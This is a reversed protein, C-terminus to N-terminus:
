RTFIYSKSSLNLSKSYIEQLLSSEFGPIKYKLNEPIQLSGNMKLNCMKFVGLPHLHM